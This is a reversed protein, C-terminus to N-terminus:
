FWHGTEINGSFTYACLKESREVPYLFLNLNEKVVKM